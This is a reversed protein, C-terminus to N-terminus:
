QYVLPNFYKSHIARIYFRALVGMGRDINPHIGNKEFLPDFRKVPENLARRFKTFPYFVDILFFRRFICENYLIRNFDIIRRNTLWDRENKIPLPLLSQFHVKSNPFLTNVKSCLEKLPGRLLNLDQVNRIDNTGVSLIIKDVAVDTNAAAYDELQKQVMNMKAGGVAINQVDVKGKGLKASDLRAAYSDGAVLTVHKVPVKTQPATSPSPDRPVSASSPSPTSVSKVARYSLAYRIKPQSESDKSKVEARVAHKLNQQTGPRMIVLSNNKMRISKVAKPKRGSTFFELTRECGLSFPCISKQQDISNEADDHIATASTNSNYKLVLCCDLPGTVETCASVLSGLKNIYPFGVIDKAPHVPDDDTYIYPKKSSSLWQTATKNRKNTLKMSECEKWVGELLEPDDCFDEIYVVYKEVDGDRKPLENQVANLIKQLEETSATPIYDFIEQLRLMEKLSLRTQGCLNGSSWRGVVGYSM